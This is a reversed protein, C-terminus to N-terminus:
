RIGAAARAGEPLVSSADGASGGNSHSYGCPCDGRCTSFTLQHSILDTVTLCPLVPFTLIINSFFLTDNYGKSGHQYYMRLLNPTPIIEENVPLTEGKSVAMMIEVSRRGHFAEYGSLM